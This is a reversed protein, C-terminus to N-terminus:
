GDSPDTALELAQGVLEFGLARLRDPDALDDHIEIFKVQIRQIFTIAESILVATVIDSEADGYLEPRHIGIVPGGWRNTLPTPDWTEIQGLLEGGSRSELRIRIRELHSLDNAESWGTNSLLPTARAQVQRRFQRFAHDLPLSISAAPARYIGRRHLTQFGNRHLADIVTTDSELLGPFCTGGYLGAYFLNRQSPHATRLHEGWRDRTVQLLEDAVAAPNEYAADVLLMNIVPPGATTEGPESGPARTLHIFGLLRDGQMALLLDEPRFHLKGLIVQEFVRPTMPRALADLPHQQWFAAIRPPDSNNFPRCEIM